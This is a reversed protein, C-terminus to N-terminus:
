NLVKVYSRRRKHQVSDFVKWQNQINLNDELNLNTEAYLVDGKSLMKYVENIIATAIGKGAYEPLVGILGLDIVKPHKIAKLLRVLAAPTLKGGSKQVAKAISPFCIGFCVIDDNEDLIVATHEVDIILKFSELLQNKMKETFPVSQYIGVYTKDLVEFFKDGYKKVFDRSNKAAGFRLGYKKMMAASLRPIREDFNKPAFLKKEIWDAEKVFGYNEILKQYYPYNYQEEFTSLEEFGEVLLGERELDSFGLPGVVADMGKEKAWQEIKGFLANAVEEDDVSDFRTFRVRKQNWKENSVKQLIGHIRGVTVDDKEAIFFVSEAQEDYVTKKKFLAKEDLYLPPVFYPNNKYLRLPFNLFERRDKRSKVEKVTVM